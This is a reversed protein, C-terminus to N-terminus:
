RHFKDDALEACEAEVSGIKIPNSTSALQQYVREVCRIGSPTEPIGIGM